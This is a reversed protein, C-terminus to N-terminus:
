FLTGQVALRPHDTDLGLLRKFKNCSEPSYGAYDNNFYGYVDSWGEWYPRLQAEIWWQLEPTPDRLERDKNAYRGHRGLFRIYLFDATPTVQKPMNIYDAAAWCINFRRLLRATEPVAWSTHRFEIAYRVGLPLAALFSVLVSGEATTFDPPLQILVVGLHRGFGKITEVFERMLDPRTLRAEHTIQQPTKPCFIFGPPVSQAWNRVRELPPTGYFTSDIEVSDFFQAYHALYQRPPMSEPYFIGKWHDYGWGVTGLHFRPFRGEFPPLQPAIM